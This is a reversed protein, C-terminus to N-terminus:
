AYLESIIDEPQKNDLVSLVQDLSKIVIVKSDKEADAALHRLKIKNYGNLQNDNNQIMPDILFLRRDGWEFLTQYGLSNHPTFTEMGSLDCAYHAKKLLDVIDKGTYLEIEKLRIEFM